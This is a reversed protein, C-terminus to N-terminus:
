PRARVGQCPHQRGPPPVHATPRRMLRLPCALARDGARRRELRGVGCEPLAVGGKVVGTVQILQPRRLVGAQVGLAVDIEVIGTAAEVGRGLELRVQVQQTVMHEAVRM